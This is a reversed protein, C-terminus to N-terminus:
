RHQGPKQKHKPRPSKVKKTTRLFVLVAVYYVLNQHIM